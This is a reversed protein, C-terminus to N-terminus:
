VKCFIEISISKKLSGGGGGGNIIIFMITTGLEVFKM